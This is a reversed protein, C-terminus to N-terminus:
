IDIEDTWLLICNPKTVTFSLRSGQYPPDLLKVLLELWKHVCYPSPLRCKVGPNLVAAENGIVSLTEGNPSYVTNYM